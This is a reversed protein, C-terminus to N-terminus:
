IRSNSDLLFLTRNNPYFVPQIHTPITPLTLSKRYVFGRITLNNVRKKNMRQKKIQKQFPM